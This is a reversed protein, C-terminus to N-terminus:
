AAALEYGTILSYKGYTGDKEEFKVNRLHVGVAIGEEGNKVFASKVVGQQNCLELLQSTKGSPKMSSIKFDYKPPTSPQPTEKPPAQPAPPPTARSQNQQPPPVSPQQNAVAGFIKKVASDYANKLKNQQNGMIVWSKGNKTPEIDVWVGDVEYLYRGIGWMCAARKFSDSLGGKIPENDSCEAGDFKPIWENREPNYIGIGCLQANGHWTTFQNKWNLPGLVEDLRNQITRSDLYFVALGSKKDAFTVQLKTGIEDFPFPEGLLKFVDQNM